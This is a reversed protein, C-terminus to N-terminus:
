QVAGRMSCSEAHKYRSLDSGCELCKNKDEREPRGAMNWKMTIDYREIMSLVYPVPSKVPGKIQKLAYWLTDCTGGHRELAQAIVHADTETCRRRALAMIKEVEGRDVPMTKGKGNGVGSDNMMSPDPRGVYRTLAGDVGSEVYRARREDLAQMQRNMRQSWLRAGDDMLLELEVLDTLFREADAPPLGWEKALMMGVMPKKALYYGDQARLIETLKWWHGYGADGYKACLAVLKPDNRADADHRFWASDKM